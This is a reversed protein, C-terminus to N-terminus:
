AVGHPVPRVASVISFYGIRPAEAFAALNQTHASGGGVPTAWPHDRLVRLHGGSLLHVAKPLKKNLAQFRTWFAAVGGPTWLDQEQPLHWPFPASPRLSLTRWALPRWQSVSALSEFDHPYRGSVHGALDGEAGVAGFHSGGISVPAVLARQVPERLEGHHSPIMLHIDNHRVPVGTSDTDLVCLRGRRDYRGMARNALSVIIVSALAVYLPVTFWTYRQLRLRKLLFYDVPGVLLVLLGLVLSLQGIRVFQMDRPMLLSIYDSVSPFDLPKLLLRGQSARMFHQLRGTSVGVATSPDENEANWNGRIIVADSQGVRMKWTFALMRRWEPDDRQADADLEADLLLAARGLAARHLTLRPGVLHGTPGAALPVDGGTDGFVRTFFEQQTDSLGQPNIVCLSGGARVWALLADLQAKRLKGVGAGALVVVDFACYEEPTSPFTEPRLPCLGSRLSNYSGAQPEPNLWDPRIATALKRVGAGGVVPLPYLISLVRENQGPISCPHQALDITRRGTRFQLQAQVARGDGYVSAPPLLLGFAQSGPALALDEVVTRSVVARGDLVEIWLDGELLATGNWLLTVVAGRPAGSRGQGHVEFTASLPEGAAMVSTHCGLLMLGSLMLAARAARNLQNTM